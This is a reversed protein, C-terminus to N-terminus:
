IVELAPGTGACLLAARLWRTCPAVAIRGIWAMLVCLWLGALPLLQAPTHTVLPGAVVGGISQGLMYGFNAFGSAQGVMSALTHDPILASVAAVLTGLGLQFVRLQHRRALPQQGARELDVRDSIATRRRAALGRAQRLPQQPPRVAPGRGHRDRDDGNGRSLLHHVCQDQRHLWAHRSPRRVPQHQRHRALGPRPDRTVPTSALRRLRSGNTSTANTAPPNHIM